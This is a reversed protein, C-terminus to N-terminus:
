KLGGPFERVTSYLTLILNQPWDRFLEGNCYLSLVYMCAYEDVRYILERVEDLALGVSVEKFWASRLLIGMGDAGGIEEDPVFSLRITRTPVYGSAQLAQLAIIYQICVSKMDQTGRGYIRGDQILGDFAPFDWHKKEVPVVDYHSNLLLCPLTTDTGAWEAVVIPKGLVSEPLIHARITPIKELQQLLWAACAGYSGNEVGASSVTEFRILQCFLDVRDVDSWISRDMSRNNTTPKMTPKINATSETSNRVYFQSHIGGMWQLPTRCTSNWGLHQMAADM